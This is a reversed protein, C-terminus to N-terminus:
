VRTAVAGPMMGVPDYRVTAGPYPAHLVQGNGVYMGVHSADSRYTVLDGPRARDLPVQRGAHRQAQSTRPIAVGAQRYAWYTLGSCDFALPGSQGWIYPRGVAQRAAAVAAAAYGSPATASGGAVPAASPRAADRSARQRDRDYSARQERTLKGLLQRARALKAEVAKKHRNVAARSREAEAVKEAARARQGDLTRQAAALARLEAAQRDGIRGLTSAKALYGDPDSSLLLAVAPDVGGSRYQAGALSGLSGRLRNAEQQGRAVRDRLRDAQGTLRDHRESEANYKETAREVETYLRDVAARVEAPTDRPAAGAPAPAASFAAAATAALASM